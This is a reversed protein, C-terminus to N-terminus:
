LREIKKEYWDAHLSWEECSLCATWRWRHGCGPCRGRTAFTNWCAGCGGSFYEPYDCPACFWRHAMKPQWKCRPCRIRGFDSADIPLTVPKKASRSALPTNQLLSWSEVNGGVSNSFQTFNPKKASSFFHAACKCDSCGFGQLTSLGAMQALIQAWRHELRETEYSCWVGIPTLFYRLYDIHWHKRKIKRCHRAIRTEVGGPGFASGIYIYYGPILEIDGWRGVQATANSLSKM